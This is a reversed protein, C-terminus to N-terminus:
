YHLTPMSDTDRLPERRPEAGDQILVGEGRDLSPRVRSRPGAHRCAVGVVRLIGRVSTWAPLRCWRARGGGGSGPSSRARTRPARTGRSDTTAVRPTRATWFGGFAA